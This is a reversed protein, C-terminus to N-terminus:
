QPPRECDSSIEGVSLQGRVVVAIPRTRQIIIQELGEINSAVSLPSSTKWLAINAAKGTALVGHTADFGLAGAANYTIACFIEAATMMLQSAALLMTLQLDSAPASGPNFDSALAVRAGAHILRRADAFGIGLFLSTAPLLTAVTPSDRLATVAADSIHELHDISAAGLRIGALSAGMDTIEDAHVKIGLGHRRGAELFDRSEELTSFGQEPFADVFSALQNKAIEEVVATMSAVHTSRSVDRPVTHLGLYTSVVEPLGPRHRVDAIIQLMRREDSATAGYGTKVEVVATGAALMQRLRHELDQALTANAAATDRITNHIGGGSDSIERYTKGAWRAFFETSRHGAFLAHTHSDIWASTAILGSGDLTDTLPFTSARGTPVLDVIRGSTPCCILDLPGERFGCDEACPRRGQMKAFGEGTFVGRLNAIRLM